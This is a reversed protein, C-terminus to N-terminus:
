GTSDLTTVKKCKHTAVEWTRVVKDEGVSVFEDGAANTALAYVKGTRHGAIIAGGNLDQGM